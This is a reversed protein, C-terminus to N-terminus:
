CIDYGRESLWKAYYREILEAQGPLTFRAEGRIWDWGALGMARRREGDAVLAELAATLAATDGLPCLLANGDRVAMEPVGGVDTAVIPLGAAAAELVATGSAEMHTALAFIDFGFMLDAVDARYGLFMVRDAVGMEAAQARLAREVVEGDGAIVLKLGAHRRFLPGMAALLDRHGKAPRLIAVCGVVIDAETMGLALRASRRTRERHVAVDEGSGWREEPFTVTPSAIGIHHRPIGRSVMYDRVFESVTLLRHPLWTYSLLSNIPNMLHRTRVVLPVGALRAGAAAILTDRRSTTHVIDYREARVLRNVAFVGRVWRAMGGMKLTHVTFGAARVRQELPTGPQCLLSMEHGRERMALMHRYTYIEQGGMHRASDTHLIRYKKVARSPSQVRLMLLWGMRQSPDNNELPLHGPGSMQALNGASPGINNGDGSGAPTIM